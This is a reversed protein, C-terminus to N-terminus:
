FEDDDNNNQQKVISLPIFYLEKKARSYAVYRLNRQQTKQWDKEAKWRDNLQEPALIFVRDNELGKSRHVTMLTVCNSNDLDSFMTEISVLLQSVTTCHRGILKIIGVMEKINNLRNNNEVNRDKEVLHQIMSVIEFDIKSYFDQLNEDTKHKKAFKFLQDGLDKGKIISPIKQELLIYYLNILPKNTRCLVWDGKQIKNLDAEVSVVGDGLKDYSEVGPYVENIKKVINKACRYCISLPLIKTNPKNKIREIASIDAGAFGYIVQKDDGIFVTRTTPKFTKEILTQQLVSLDQFEDVMVNDYKKIRLNQQLPIQLMDTFDIIPKDHSSLRSNYDALLRMVQIVHQKTKAVTYAGYHDLIEEVRDEGVSDFETTNLRVLNVSNILNYKYFDQDKKPISWNPLCKDVFGFVKFGNVTIRGGYASRIASMGVSHVTACNIHDPIKTKLVDVISKNFSVVLSDQASPLIKSMEILTTTKGSGPVALVCINNKTNKQENFINTQYTSWSKEM